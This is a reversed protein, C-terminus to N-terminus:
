LLGRGLLYRIRVTRAGHLRARPWSPFRVVVTRCNTGFVHIASQLAEESRGKVDVQSGLLASETVLPVAAREYLYRQRDRQM